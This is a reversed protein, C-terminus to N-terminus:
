DKEISSANYKKKNKVNYFKLRSTRSGRSGNDRKNFKTWVKVNWYARARRLNQKVGRFRNKLTVM